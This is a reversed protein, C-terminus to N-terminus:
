WLAREQYARSRERVIADREALTVRAVDRPLAKALDKFKVKTLKPIPQSDCGTWRGQIIGRPYGATDLWNKVGPDKSSVVIRLKGDSDPAAQAANLSSHNNTWDVTEYLANTLILSRYRCTAPVESEVVLAEDDAIDYVGDYYFQSALAGEPPVMVKFRNVYGEDALKQVTAVFMPAITGIAQPLGKLKATLDAASPRRRGMPAGVREITVTPQEEHSWDSSVVRLMLRRTQGELQWFDGEYGEPRTPAVLVSYRGEADTKLTALDLHPRSNSGRLVQAIVALTVSGKRGSIRYGQAPDVAAVKYVTDANPQGVNLVQGIAPLFVPATPDSGIAEISSSAVAELAIRGIEARIQPDQRMAEPLRALMREPLDRLSDVFEDWGEVPSATSPAVAQQARAGFPLAALAVAALGLLKLSSRAM